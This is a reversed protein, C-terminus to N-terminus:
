TFYVYGSKTAVRWKSIEKLYSLALRKSNFMIRTSTSSSDFMLVEWKRRELKTLFM